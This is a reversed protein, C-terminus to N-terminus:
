GLDGALDVANQDLHAIPNRCASGEDFDVPIRKPNVELLSLGVECGRFGVQRQGLLVEIALSVQSRVLGNRLAGEVLRLRGVVEGDCTSGRSRCGEIESSAVVLAADHARRRGAGHGLAHHHGTLPSFDADAEEVEGNTVWSAPSPCNLKV